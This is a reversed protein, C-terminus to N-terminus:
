RVLSWRDGQKPVAASWGWQDTLISRLAQSPSQEGHVVLTRRPAPEFGKLWRLLERQDAHASLGGIQVVEARVPVMRGHIRIREAGESLKRGRTGQAQYGVLLVANREDPLRWRLHHVIRGGSLMGSASIVIAPGPQHNLAKSDEVQRIFRTDRCRLPCREPDMLLNAELNHDDGYDCYIHSADVAMPSDIYVPLEPIAGAEQLQRILFLVLQTRGVAFAPILLVGGREATRRIVAGLGASPSERTHRGDGYTSEVLLLDAQSVSSPPHMFPSDYGGLDGSFVVSRGNELELRLIGSGLIHGASHWTARTGDLELPSGIPISELLGLAAQADEATYLPRAPKHRSHGSRNAYAADQEQLYAADPLLLELLACTAGTAYVPGRFGDASLRPLYGVHDIHAHTLLVGDLSEPPIPFPEWNRAEMERGGQFLGCDILWRHNGTELLYRSGTVTGGAGLVHVRNM